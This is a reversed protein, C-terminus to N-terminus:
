PKKNVLERFAPTVHSLIEEQSFTRVPDKELLYKELKTYTQLLHQRSSAGISQGAGLSSTVFRLDDLIDDVKEPRSALNAVAVISDIYDRDTAKGASAGSQSFVTLKRFEYGTVLLTLGTIVWPILYYGYDTYMSGNNYWLTTISEHWGTIAFSALSIVMWQMAKHYHSSIARYVKYMLITALTLFAAGAACIGVYIDAGSIDYSIVYHGLVGMGVGAVLAITVGLWVAQLPSRIDLARSFKRAAIYIVAIALMLPAVSAGSTAWASDWLDFMSWIILQVFLASFSLLGFALLRYAKRMETKFSSLGGLITIAAGIFLIVASTGAVSRWHTAVPNVTATPLMFILVDAVAALAVFGFSTLASYGKATHM